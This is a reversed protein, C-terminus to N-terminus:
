RLGLARMNRRARKTNNYSSTIRALTGKLLDDRFQLRKETRNAADKRDASRRQHDFALLSLLTAAVSVVGVQLLSKAFEMDLSDKEVGHIYLFTFWGASIVFLASMVWPLPNKM